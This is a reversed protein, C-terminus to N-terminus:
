MAGDENDKETNSNEKVTAQDQDDLVDFGLGLDGQENIIGIDTM